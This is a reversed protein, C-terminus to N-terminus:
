FYVYIFHFAYESNQIRFISQFYLYIPKRANDICSDTFKTCSGSFCYTDISVALLSKGSGAPYYRIRALDLVLIWRIDVPYSARM